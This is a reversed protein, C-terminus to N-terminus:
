NCTLISKLELLPLILQLKQAKFWFAEAAHGHQTAVSFILGMVTGCVLVLEVSLLIFRVMM